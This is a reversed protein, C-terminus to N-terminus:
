RVQSTRASSPSHRDATGERLHQPRDVRVPLRHRQLRRTACRRRAAQQSVAGHTHAPAACRQTAAQGPARQRAPWKRQPPPAHPAGGSGPPARWRTSPAGAAAQCPMTRARTTHCRRREPAVLRRQQESPARAKVAGAELNQAAERRREGNRRHLRQKFVHQASKVRAVRAAHQVPHTATAATAARAASRRTRRARRLVDLWGVQEDATVAPQLESVKAARAQQACRRQGVCAARGPPVAGRLQQVACSRVAVADVAPRRAADQRLQETARGEEGPLAVDVLEDLRTPTSGM